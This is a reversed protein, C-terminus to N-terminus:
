FHQPKECLHQICSFFVGPLFCYNILIMIKNHHLWKMLNWHLLKLTIRCDWCPPLTDLIFCTAQQLDVEHCRPTCTLNDWSGARPTDVWLGLGLFDFVNEFVHFSISVYLSTLQLKKKHSIYTYTNFSRRISDHLHKASLSGKKPHNTQSTTVQTKANFCQSVLNVHFADSWKSVMEGHLLSVRSGWSAYYKHFKVTPNGLPPNVETRTINPSITLMSVNNCPLWELRM